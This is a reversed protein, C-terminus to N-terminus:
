RLEAAQKKTREIEVEHVENQHNIVRTEAEALSKQKEAIGGGARIVALSEEAKIKRSNYLDFQAHVEAEDNIVEIKSKHREDIRTPIKQLERNIEARRATIIKKQDDISHKGLIEPLRDLGDNSPHKIVDANTVDGCIELLLRRRDTWHLVENFYRPNTLLKFNDENCIKNVAAAFEKKLCPVGNIFHDITHGSFTSEISGRRKTYKEAYVKRLVTQQDGTDLDGHELICTVEHELGHLAEGSPTLHKIDFIASNLSDKDFLVWCFADFVTTKGTANDGHISIGGNFDAIEFAKLGKFNLLSLLKIRVEEM